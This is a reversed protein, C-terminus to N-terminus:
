NRLNPREFLPNNDSTRKVGMLSILPTGTDGQTGAVCLLASISFLVRNRQGPFLNAAIWIREFTGIYPSDNQFSKHGASSHMCKELIKSPRVAAVCKKRYTATSSDGTSKIKCLLFLQRCPATMSQEVLPIKQM